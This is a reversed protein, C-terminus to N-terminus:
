FCPCNCNLAPAKTARSGWLAFASRPEPIDGSALQFYWKRETKDYISINNFGKTHAKDGGGLHVLIGSDGYKPINVM